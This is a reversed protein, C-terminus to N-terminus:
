LRDRQRPWSAMIPRRGHPVVGITQAQEETWGALLRLRIRKCTKCQRRKRGKGADTYLTNEPTYEHGQKCHTKAGNTHRKKEACDKINQQQTGLWLHTPNVCLRVDCTHCVRMGKQIPGHILRYMARHAANERLASFYGYGWPNMRGQWIWCGNDDQKVNALLRRM